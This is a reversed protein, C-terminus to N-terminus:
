RWDLVAEVGIQFTRDPGPEYYRGGFANVAVSSVYMEDFLNQVSIWPTIRTSGLTLPQLGTRLDVLLYGEAEATNEDDVAIDGTWRTRLGLFGRSFRQEVQLDLLHPARGPIRNGDFDGSEFRADVWTYAARGTLGVDLSFRLAAEVGQHSSEGVNRFFTRGPDDPVEFPVLEDRLATYFGVLEWGVSRALNGRIGVEGTWGKTPELEPNFGGAGDPRNALESTTPTQLFSSVSAFTKIGGLDLAAGLSPNWADM